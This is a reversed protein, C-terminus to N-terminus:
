AKQNAYCELLGAMKNAVESRSLLRLCAISGALLPKRLLTPLPPALRVYQQVPLRRFGLGEKFRDLSNLNGQLPEFGISVRRVGGDRLVRQIFTFLLANNPYYRLQEAASRVIVINATNAV